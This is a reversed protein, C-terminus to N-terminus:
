KRGEDCWRVAEWGSLRAVARPTSCSDMGVVTDVKGWRSSYTGAFPLTDDYWWVILGDAALGIASRPVGISLTAEPPEGASRGEVPKRDTWPDLADKLPVSIGDTLRLPEIDNWGNLDGDREADGAVESGAYWGDDSPRILVGPPAWTWLVRGLMLAVDGEGNLGAWDVGIAAGPSADVPWAGIGIELLEGIGCGMVRIALLKPERRGRIDDAALTFLASSSLLLPCALQVDEMAAGPDPRYVAAPALEYSSSRWIRSKMDISASPCFVLRFLKPAGGVSDLLIAGSDFNRFICSECVARASEIDEDSNNGVALEGDVDLRFRELAGPITGDVAKEEDDDGPFGSDGCVGCVGATGELSLSPRV